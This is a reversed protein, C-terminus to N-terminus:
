DTRPSGPCTGPKVTGLYVDPMVDSNAGWVASTIVNSYPHSRAQEPTLYGADV